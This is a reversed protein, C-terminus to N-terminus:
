TSSKAYFFLTKALQEGKDLQGSVTTLSTLTQNIIIGTGALLVLILTVSAYIKVKLSMNKLWGM